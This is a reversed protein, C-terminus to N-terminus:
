VLPEDAGAGHVYRRLVTHASNLETILADGLMDLRTQAAGETMMLRGAADYILTGGTGAYLRNEPTYSYSRTGDGTVNGRGDHTLSVGGLSTLQNLGNSPSSVTGNVSGGYAYAYAYADNSRTNTVIQGAPNYGLTLSLDYASGGLDHSLRSAAGYGYSTSTGNLRSLSTRRGLDDYGFSVLAALGNERIASM